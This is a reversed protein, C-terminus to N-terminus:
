FGSHEDCEDCVGFWKVGDWTESFM